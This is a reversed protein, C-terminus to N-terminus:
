PTVKSSSSAPSEIMDFPIKDKMILSSPHVYYFINDDKDKTALCEITDPLVFIHLNAFYMKHMTRFEAKKEDSLKALAQFDCLPAGGLCHPPQIPTIDLGVLKSGKPLQSVAFSINMKEFAAKQLTIYEQSHPQLSHATRLFQTLNSPRAIARFFLPGKLCVSIPLM